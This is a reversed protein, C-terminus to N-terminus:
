LQGLFPSVRWLYISNGFCCHHSTPTGTVWTWFSGCDARERSISNLHRELGDKIRGHWSNAVECMLAVDASWITNLINLVSHKLWHYLQILSTVVTVVKVVPGADESTKEGHCWLFCFPTTSIQHELRIKSFVLMSVIWASWKGDGGVSSSCWSWRICHIWVRWCLDWTFWTCLNLWVGFEIPSVEFELLQWANRVTETCYEWGAIVDGRCRCWTSDGLQFQCRVSKSKYPHATNLVITYSIHNIAMWGFM